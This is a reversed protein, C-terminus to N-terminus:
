KPLTRVNFVDGAVVESFSGDDMCLILNGDKNVAQAVGEITCGGTNATVRKGLTGMHRIWEAMIFDADGMRDCMEEMEGYLNLAVEAISVERGLEVSLSTAIQAIEPFKTTDFNVNVGIGIVSYVLRGATFGNEILIGCVKKEAILVDNPWKISAKIGMKGITNLVAVSAVAPLLSLSNAEPRLIISTALGGEPSLWSRGLRGRGSRQEGAIVVAGNPAGEEALTRAEDMTSTTVAVYHAERGVYRTKLNHELYSTIDSKLAM